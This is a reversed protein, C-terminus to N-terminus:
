MFVNQWKSFLDNHVSVNMEHARCGHVETQSLFVRCAHVSTASPKCAVYGKIEDKLSQALETAATKDAEAKRLEATMKDLAKEASCIYVAPM